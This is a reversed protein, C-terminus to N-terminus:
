RGLRKVPIKGFQASQVNVPAQARPEISSALQPVGKPKKVDDFEGEETEEEGYIQEAWEALSQIIHEPSPYTFPLLWAVSEDVDSLGSEYLTLYSTLTLQAFILAVSETTIVLAMMWVSIYPDLMSNFSLLSSICGEINLVALRYETCEVSFCCTIPYLCSAENPRCSMLAKDRSPSSQIDYRSIKSLDEYDEASGIGCCNFRAMCLKEFFLSRTVLGDVLDEEIVAEVLSLRRDEANNDYNSIKSLLGNALAYNFDKAFVVSVVIVFSLFGVATCMTIIKETATSLGVRLRSVDEGRVVDTSWVDLLEIVKARHFTIYAFYELSMFVCLLLISVAFLSAAAKRFILRRFPTARCSFLVM